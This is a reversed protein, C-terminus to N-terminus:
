FVLKLWYALKWKGAHHNMELRIRIRVCENMNVSKWVKIKVVGKYKVRIDTGKVKTICIEEPDM